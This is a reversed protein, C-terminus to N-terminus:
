GGHGDNGGEGSGEATGNLPTDPIGYLKELARLGVDIAARAGDMRRFPASTPIVKDFVAAIRDFRAPWDADVTVPFVTKKAKGGRKRKRRSM